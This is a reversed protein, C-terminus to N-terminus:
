RAIQSLISPHMEYQGLELYNQNQLDYIQGQLQDVWEYLRFLHKGIDNAGMKHKNTFETIMMHNANLGHEVMGRCKFVEQEMSELRTEM